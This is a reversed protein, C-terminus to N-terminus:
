PHWLLSFYSRCFNGSGNSSSFCSWWIDRVFSFEGEVAEKEPPSEAAGTDSGAACSIFSLTGVSAAGDEKDKNDNASPDDSTDSSNPQTEDVEDLSYDTEKAGLFLLSFLM